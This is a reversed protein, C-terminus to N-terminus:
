RHPEGHDGANNGGGCIVTISKADPWKEKLKQYSFLAARHMLTYGLIKYEEIAIRDLERVQEASYLKVPM